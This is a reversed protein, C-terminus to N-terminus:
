CVSVVPYQAVHFRAQACVQLSKNFARLATGSRLRPVALQM